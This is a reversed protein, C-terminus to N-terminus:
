DATDTAEVAVPVATAKASKKHPAKTTTAKPAPKVAAKRAPAKPKSARGTTAKPKAAKRKATKPKPAETTAAAPAASAKPKGTVKGPKAADSKEDVSTAPEAKSAAKSGRKPAPQTVKALTATAAAKKARSKRVPAPKQSAGLLLTELEELAKGTYTALRQMHPLTDRCGTFGFALNGAYSQCTINLAQGHTVLSVPYAAELRAGRYYLPKDPGPVNSITINFMPRTRGGVGSLLSLMYPAMLLMTYQTMAKKPLSQVHNKARRTSATIAELRERPDDIDTGLTSIIFTIANGMGEDDKPRVSVPIGATLPKDPLEGLEVLFRRLASGCLALVVDNVTAGGADALKKLRALEFRQTAFRRAGHIRGNIISTPTDFPVQLTEEKNRLAGIMSGFARAIDPLSGVQDRVMDAVGAIVQAPTPAPKRGRRGGRQAPAGAAWFAPLKRSSKEDGTMARELLKIGGIGDVLSHHMKVYLAFENNALGEILNCEWPPRTLDLPQSHLRAILQGLEREGGPKPLASHRVHHELDIDSEIEWAPMLGKLSTARLRQNWPATFKRSSRFDAMLKRLYDPAADAPLSFRLLGGVHMPTDRSEVMLWSADLPNLTKITM